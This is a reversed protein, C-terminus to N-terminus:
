NEEHELTMLRKTAPSLKKLHEQRKHEAQAKAHSQYIIFRKHRTYDHEDWERSPTHNYYWRAFHM